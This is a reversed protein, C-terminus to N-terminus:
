EKKMGNICKRKLIMRKKKRENNIDNMEKRDKTIEERLSM